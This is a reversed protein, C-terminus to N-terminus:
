RGGYARELSALYAAAAAANSRRWLEVHDRTDTAPDDLADLTEDLAARQSRILSIPSLGARQLLSLKLLFEIRLDRVHDVPEALWHRLERRGEATVAHVVRRPGGAKETTVQEAHGADVLRDLARYVLSRPVTFVRGVDSAADLQKSIAFGHNPAEALIGLVAHETVSLQSETM